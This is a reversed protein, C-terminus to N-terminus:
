YRIKLSASNQRLVSNKEKTGTGFCAKLLTPASVRSVRGYGKVKRRIIPNFRFDSLWIMNHSLIYIFYIHMSSYIGNGDRFLVTVIYFDHPVALDM